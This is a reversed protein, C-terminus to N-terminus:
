FPMKFDQTEKCEFVYQKIEKGWDSEAVVYKSSINRDTLYQMRIADSGNIEYPVICAYYFGIQELINIITPTNPDCLSLPVYTVMVGSLVSQRLINRVRLALDKGPRKIDLLLQNWETKVSMEVESEDISFVINNNVDNFRRKLGLHTYTNEIMKRHNVPAYIDQVNKHSTCHFYSIVSQRQEDGDRPIVSKLQAPIYGLELGTEICGLAINVKQTFPHGTVSSSYVGRLGDKEAQEILEKKLHNFLGRKGYEPSVFAQGSECIQSDAADKLMAVHAVVIGAENLAVFGRYLGQHKRELIVEPYYISDASYTYGFVNYLCQVLMEMESDQIERLIVKDTALTIVEDTNLVPAMSEDIQAPLAINLEVSQGEKGQQLMRYSSSLQKILSLSIKDQDDLVREMNYGFPIGLYHFQLIFDAPTISMKITIEGDTRNKFARSVIHTFVEEVLIELHFLKNEPVQCHRALYGIYHQLPQIQYLETSVVLTSLTKNFM